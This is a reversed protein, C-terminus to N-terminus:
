LGCYSLFSSRLASGDRRAEISETAIRELRMELKLLQLEGPLNTAVRVMTRM